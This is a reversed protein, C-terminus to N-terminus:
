ALYGPCVNQCLKSWVSLLPWPTIPCLSAMEWCCQCAERYFSSHNCVCVVCKSMCVHWMCVCEGVRVRAALGRLWTLWVKVDSRVCLCDYLSLFVDQSYHLIWLWTYSFPPILNHKNAAGKTNELNGQKSPVLVCVSATREARPLEQPRQTNVSLGVRVVCAAEDTGTCVTAAYLRVCWVLRSSFCMQTSIKRQCESTCDSEHSSSSMTEEFLYNSYGWIAFRGTGLGRLM